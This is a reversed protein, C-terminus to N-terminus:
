PAATAATPSCSSACAPERVPELEFYLEDDILQGDYLCWTEDKKDAEDGTVDPVQGGHGSYASSSLTAPEGSDPRRKRMAALAAPATAKKTLLMPRSSARNSPPSRTAMDNADFERVGRAARDWGGYAGGSVGNLGITCRCARRRAKAQEQDRRTKAM